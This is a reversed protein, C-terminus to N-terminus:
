RCKAGALVRREGCFRDTHSIATLAAVGKRLEGLTLVSLFVSNPETGQLFAFAGPDPKPKRTESVLNTDFLYRTQGSV